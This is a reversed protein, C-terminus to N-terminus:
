CASEHIRPWGLRFGSRCRTLFPLLMDLM